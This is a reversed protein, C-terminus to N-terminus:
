WYVPCDGTKDNLRFSIFFGAFSFWDNNNLLTKVSEGGPNIVGDLNDNFTKSMGWEVGIGIRKTPAYKIGAGFPVSFFNGQNNPASVFAQYGLGAYLYPSFGRKRKDTIYPLFNFEYAVSIESFSTSFSANRVQQYVNNFDRDSGKITIYSLTARLAERNNLNYRVFGGFAPSPSYFQRSPNIDGLYYSVGATLGADFYKYKQNQATVQCIAFIVIILCISYKM